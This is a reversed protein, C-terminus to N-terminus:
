SSARTPTGDGVSVSVVRKVDKCERPRGFEVRFRGGGRLTHGHVSVGWMVARSDAGKRSVATGGV